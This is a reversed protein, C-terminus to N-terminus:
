LILVFGGFQMAPWAKSLKREEQSVCVGVLWSATSLAQWPAADCPPLHEMKQVAVELLLHSTLDDVTRGCGVSAVLESAISPPWFM